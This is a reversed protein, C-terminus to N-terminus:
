AARERLTALERVDLSPVDARRACEFDFDSDGIFLSREPRASHRDLLLQLGEPDPKRAAVDERGIIEAVRGDLGARRLARWVAEVCNLSLVAVPTQSPLQRVWAVLDDNVTCTTTGAIEARALAREIAHVADSSGLRRAEEFLDLVRTQESAALGHAAAIGALERKVEQWAVDLRCVTGDLDLVVLDYFGAAADRSAARGDAARRPLRYAPDL